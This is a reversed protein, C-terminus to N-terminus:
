DPKRSEMARLVDRREKLLAKDEEQDRRASVKEQHSAAGILLAVGIVIAVFFLTLLNKGGM